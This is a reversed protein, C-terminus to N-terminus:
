RPAAGRAATPNPEREDTVAAALGAVFGAARLCRSRLYGFERLKLQIIQGSPSCGRRVPKKSVGM